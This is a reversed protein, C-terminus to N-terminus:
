RGSVGRSFPGTCPRHRRLSGPRSSACSNSTTKGAPKLSKLPKKRRSMWRNKASFMNAQGPQRSPGRQMSAAPTAITVADVDPSALLEEPTGYRCHYKEALKAAREPVTDCVMALEGNELLSIAEAHTAAIGGAGIIGFRVM